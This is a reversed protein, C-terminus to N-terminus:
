VNEEDEEKTIKINTLVYDWSTGWHTVGWLNVDLEDNRYVIENCEQLIEAGRDSVIYWQFVEPQEDQEAELEDRQQETRTEECELNYKESSLVDIEGELAAIIFANEPNDELDKKLESIRIERDEISIELDNIKDGIRSLEEEAAEIQESNDIFGSIQEWYGVDYTKSLIENNLVADFAKALTRYDVYGNKQGYESVENGYFYKSSITMM